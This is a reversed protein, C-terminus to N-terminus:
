TYGIEIILSLTFILKDHINNSSQGAIYFSLRLRIRNTSAKILHSSFTALPNLIISICARNCECLSQLIKNM